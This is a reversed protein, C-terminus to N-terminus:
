DDRQEKSCERIKAIGMSLAASAMGRTLNIAYFRAHEVGHLGTVLDDGYRSFM